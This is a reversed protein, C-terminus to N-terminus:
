IVGGELNDLNDGTNDIWDNSAKEKEHENFDNWNKNLKMTAIFKWFPIVPSEVNYTTLFQIMIDVTQPFNGTAVIQPYITSFNGMCVRGSDQFVHPHPPNINYKNDALNITFTGLEINLLVKYKPLKIEVDHHKMKLNKFIFQLSEENIILWSELTKVKSFYDIAKDTKEILGKEQNKLISLERLLRDEQRTVSIYQGLATQQQDRANILDNNIIRNRESSFNLILNKFTEKEHDKTPHLEYKNDMLKLSQDIIYKMIMINAPTREEIGWFMIINNKELLAIPTNRIILNNNRMSNIKDPYLLKISDREIYNDTNFQRLKTKTIIKNRKNPLKIKIEHTYLNINEFENEIKNKLEDTPYFTPKFELNDIDYINIGFKNNIPNTNQNTIINCHVKNKFEAQLWEQIM